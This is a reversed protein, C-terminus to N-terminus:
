NGNNRRRKQKINRLSPYQNLVTVPVIKGEEIAKKVAKYHDTCICDKNRRAWESLTLEYDEM